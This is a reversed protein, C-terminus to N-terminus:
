VHKWCKDPLLTRKKCIDELQSSLNRTERKNIWFFIKLKSFCSLKFQIDSVNTWIKSIKKTESYVM